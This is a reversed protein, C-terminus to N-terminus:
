RRGMKEEQVRDVRSRVSQRKGEMLDSLEWGLANVALTMYHATQWLGAQQLRPVLLPLEMALAYSQQVQEATILAKDM